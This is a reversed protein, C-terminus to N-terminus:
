KWVWNNEEQYALNLHLALDKLTSILEDLQSIKDKPFLISSGGKLRILLLSPIEIIENIEETSISSESGQEKLHILQKGLEITSTKGFREHYTDEIFKQYHKRYRRREWIPYLFYWLLGILGFVLAQSYMSGQLYLLGLLIYLGALLLKSRKRKKIIRETKSAIYLQHNLYDTQDLSYELIM